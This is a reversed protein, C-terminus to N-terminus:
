PYYDSHFNTCTLSSPATEMEETDEVLLPIVPRLSEFEQRVCCLEMEQNRLVRFPDKMRHRTDNLELASDNV